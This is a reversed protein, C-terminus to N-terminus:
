RAPEEKPDPHAHTSSAKDMWAQSIRGTRLIRNAAIFVALDFGFVVTAVLAQKIRAPWAGHRCRIFRAFLIHRPILWRRRGEFEAKLRRILWEPDRADESAMVQGADKGPGCTSKLYALTRSIIVVTVAQRRQHAFVDRFRTYGEYVHASDPATRILSNDAPATYLRTVVMYKIFGDEGLIGRPIRFGRAVESRLAYLQGTLQGPARQNGRNIALSLRDFVSKNEKLAIHKVPTDTVAPIEPNEKFVRIMNELTRHELFRIDADMFFLLDADPASFDHVFRNWANCKSPEVVECVEVRIRNALLGMTQAALFANRAAAATQDTCGNPVVLVEIQLEQDADPAFISQQMLSAITTAISREENWALIGISIKM